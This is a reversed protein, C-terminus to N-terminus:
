DKADPRETKLMFSFVSILVTLAALYAVAFFEAALRSVSDKFILALIGSVFTLAGIIYFIKGAPGSVAAKEVSKPLSLFFAVACFLIGAAVFVIGAAFIM